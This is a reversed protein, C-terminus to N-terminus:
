QESDSSQDATVTDIFEKARHAAQRPPRGKNTDFGKDQDLNDLSRPSSVKGTAHGNKNNSVDETEVM